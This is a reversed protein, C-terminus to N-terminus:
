SALHVIDYGLTDFLSCTYDFYTFLYTDFAHGNRESGCGLSFRWGLLMLGVGVWGFRGHLM